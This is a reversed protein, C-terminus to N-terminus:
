VSGDPCPPFGLVIVPMVARVSVGPFLSSSLFLFSSFFYGDPVDITRLEHDPERPRVRGALALDGDIKLMEPERNVGEGVDHTLLGRGAAESGFSFVQNAGAVPQATLAPRTLQCTPNQGPQAIAGHDVRDPIRRFDLHQPGQRM